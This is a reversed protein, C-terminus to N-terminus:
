TDLPLSLQHHRSSLDDIEPRGREPACVDTITVSCGSGVLEDGKNFGPDVSYNPEPKVLVSGGAVGSGVGLTKVMSAILRLRALRMALLIRRPEQELQQRTADCELDLLSAVATLNSM